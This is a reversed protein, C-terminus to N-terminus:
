RRVKRFLERACPKCLQLPVLPPKMGSTDALPAKCKKCIM